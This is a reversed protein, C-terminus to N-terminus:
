ARVGWEAALSTATETCDAIDKETGGRVGAAYGVIFTTVPAAPRNVSHATDRALDLVAKIDVDTDVNLEECLEDIWAQLTM